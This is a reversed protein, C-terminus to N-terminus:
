VGLRRKREALQADLTNEELVEAMQNELRSADVEGQATAKDLRRRIEDRMEAIGADAATGSVGQVVKHTLEKSKALDLMAQLEVKEQRIETLKAELKLKADLLKQFEAEQATAQEDYTEALRAITNYRSQVARALDEKGQQLLLDISHDLEDAKAQFEVQKRRLGKAEGGVTAAADELAELNDEVKRIYEEVVAMSNAKLAKSVLYNLNASILTGVRELLSAM